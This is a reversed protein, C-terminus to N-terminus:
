RPGHVARAQHHGQVANAEHGKRRKMRRCHEPGSAAGGSRPLAAPLACNGKAMPSSTCPRTKGNREGTQVSGGTSWWWWGPGTPAPGCKPEPSVTAQSANSQLHEIKVRAAVLAEWLKLAKHGHRMEPTWRFGLEDELEREIREQQHDDVPETAEPPDKAAEALAAIFLESVEQAQEQTMDDTRVDAILTEDEEGAWIAAYAPNGDFEGLRYPGKPLDKRNM